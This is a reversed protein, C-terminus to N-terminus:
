EYDDFIEDVLEHVEQRSINKCCGRALVIQLQRKMVQLEELKDIDLSIVAGRRKDLSIYGERKLVSYAKNVTHMNVGITDALRRVSPLSDGEHIVSTAIGMIIQNCLQIYIAEDSNFDVEIIM